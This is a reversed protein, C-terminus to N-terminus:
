RKVKNAIMATLGGVVGALIIIMAFTFASEVLGENDIWSNSADGDWLMMEVLALVFGIATGYKSWRLLRRSQQSNNLPKMENQGEPEPATERLAKRNGNTKDPL